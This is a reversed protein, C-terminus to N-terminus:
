HVQALVQGNPKPKRMQLIINNCMIESIRELTPRRYHSSSEPTQKNKKVHKKERSYKERQRHDSCMTLIINFGIHKKHKGLSQM